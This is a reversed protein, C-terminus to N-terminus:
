GVPYMRWVYRYSIESELDSSRYSSGSDGSRPLRRVTMRTSNACHLQLVAGFCAWLFWAVFMKYVHSLVTTYAVRLRM